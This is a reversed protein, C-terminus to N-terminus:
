DDDDHDMEGYLRTIISDPLVQLARWRTENDMAELAAMIEADDSMADDDSNDLMRQRLREPSDGYLLRKAEVPIIRSM